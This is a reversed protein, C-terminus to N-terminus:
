LNLLLRVALTRERPLETYPTLSNLRYDQGTVNLLGVRLEGYGRPFRYGAYVNFQWFDDGSVALSAPYGDNTQHYWSGQLQGFLGSPHNYLAALGLEHLVAELHQRPRFEGTIYSNDIDGPTLAAGEVFKSHLDSKSLRYRATLAWEDGLLQNATLLIAPEHYDLHEPTQGVNALGLPNFVFVGVSREVESTLFQGTVGLYTRTSPIRHEFSLGYMDFQAGANEGAVSEPIVSRFAQNFGAVQSPELRVSSELSAGGLSRSYAGRVVTDRGLEWIVGAKPSLQHADTANDSVPPARFNLPYTLSDYSLGGVLWLSDTVALNEYGYVTIRDFEVDLNQSAAPVPFFGDFDTPPDTQLNRTHFHGAQFRGGAILAGGQHQYIHQLEGSYIELESEYAQTIPIPIAFQIQKAPRDVYLTIQYPDSVDIQDDLRAFLLLTHSNASWEHHLGASLIPEQNEKTRLAPNAFSPKYYQRLDGGEAEYNLARVQITDRQTLQQKFSFSLIREEFDQNPREGPDWRYAAELSYASHAFTGYQAGAEVWAGRSYYETSSALGVGDGEFLKSYEQQSITPSLTGAGVPALLNAVLYETETATEYRLDIRNPDRLYNYSNALFLHASYNAYDYNVARGAERVGVDVMGADLYIAALNASRVARDQDLLLESRYVRRNENLEQSKELERVAENIHNSQQLLLASYLWATPDAPDLRKALEIEYRARPNDGANSYAKGLYSRLLARQPELAAAVLLDERGVDADGHRIRCLGRGLWANGLASDVTIARNFWFVAERTRNQAARLFGKLALAEANRPALALSRDLAELAESIHGFGFELEAVRAWGFSFQPSETVTQRALSLANALSEKRVALSQEYYSAALLETPLQPSRLSPNPQRTVAAVIQRLAGGLRTLVDAPKNSQVTALINTSADVQGVALLLAALFIREADSAPQRNAPYRALAVLLDGERYAALSEALAAREPAALPLDALDLVAPYYFAWQLVSNVVFGATQVPPQGIDAVAQQGNTLVLESLNNGFRVRGDILSLKTREAAGEGSAELVFETGEIGATAGRTIVRIPRPKDRHFFSSIGKFLHFGLLSGSQDPPLVEIEARANLILVSQDSWRLTVRSNNGVRLRDFPNLVQNTTTSVWTTAGRPMVDAQGQLGVIRIQNTAATDAAQAAHESGLMLQFCLLAITSGLCRGLWSNM